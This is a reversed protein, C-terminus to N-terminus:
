HNGDPDILGSNENFRGDAPIEIGSGSSKEEPATREPNSTFLGVLIKWIESFVGRETM